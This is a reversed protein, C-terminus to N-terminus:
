CSPPDTLSVVAAQVHDDNGKLLEKVIALKWFIRKSTDSKLVVVDGIRVSNHRGEKKGVQLNHSERLNLLYDRRWQNILLHRHHKLKYTLSHYTSVVKFHRSNPISTIRQGNILHSPSLCETVGDQDDAVYTLPRSNIIAEVEVVLTHLQEYTLHSRGISKRLSSKVSQILCEWFDGWWPAKEVILKWTVRRDGLFRIVEDSRSFRGLHLKLHRLM